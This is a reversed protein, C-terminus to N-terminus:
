QVTVSSNLFVLVRLTCLLLYFALDRRVTSHYCLSLPTCKMEPVNMSLQFKCQMWSSSLLQCKLVTHCIEFLNLFRCILISLTKSLTRRYFFYMQNTPMSLTMGYSQTNSALAVSHLVGRSIYHVRITVTLIFGKGLVDHLVIKICIFWIPWKLIQLTYKM